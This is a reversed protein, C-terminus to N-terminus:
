VAPKTDAVTDAGIGDVVAALVVASAAVVVV